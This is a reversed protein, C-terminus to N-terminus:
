EEYDDGLYKRLVVDDPENQLEMMSRWKEFGYASRIGETNKCSVVLHSENNSNQENCLIGENSQKKEQLIANGLSFRALIRAETSGDVYLQRGM